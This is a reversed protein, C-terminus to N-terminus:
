KNFIIDNSSKANVSVATGPSLIWISLENIRKRGGGWMRWDKWESTSGKNWFIKRLWFCIIVM